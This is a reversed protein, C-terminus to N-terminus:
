QWGLIQILKSETFEGYNLHTKGNVEDIQWEGLISKGAFSKEVTFYRIKEIGVDLAIIIMECLPIIEPKPMTIRLFGRNGAVGIKDVSFDSAAYPCYYNEGEHLSSYLEVFFNGEKQLIEVVVAIGSDDLLLRPLLEAEIAYRISTENMSSEKEEFNKNFLEM